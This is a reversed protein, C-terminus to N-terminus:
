MKFLGGFATASWRALLSAPFSLVAALGLTLAGLRLGDFHQSGQLFHWLAALAALRM